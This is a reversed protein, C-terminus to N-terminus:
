FSSKDSQSQQWHLGLGLTGLTEIHRMIFRVQIYICFLVMNPGFFYEISKFALSGALV